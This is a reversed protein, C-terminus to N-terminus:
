QGVFLVNTTTWIDSNTGTVAGAALDFYNAATAVTPSVATVELASGSCATALQGGVKVQAFTPSDACQVQGVALGTITSATGVVTGTNTIDSVASRRPLGCVGGCISKADGECVVTGSNSCRTVEAKASASTNSTFGMVGGVRLGSTWSASAAEAASAHVLGSNSCDTLVFNNTAAAFVGAVRHTLAYIKGTNVCNTLTTPASSSGRGFALIGAVASGVSNDYVNSRVRTITGSFTCDTLTSSSAHGAVGGLCAFYKTAGKNLLSEGVTGAVTVHEITTNVIIGAVFGYCSGGKLEENM